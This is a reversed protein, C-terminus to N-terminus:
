GVLYSLCTDILIKDNPNTSGDRMHSLFSKAEEVQAKLRDIELDKQTGLESIRRIETRLFSTEEAGTM